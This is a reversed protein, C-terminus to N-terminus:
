DERTVLIIKLQYKKLTNYINCLNILSDINYYYSINRLKTSKDHM